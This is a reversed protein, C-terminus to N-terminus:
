VRFNGIVAFGAAKEFGGQEKQPTDKPQKV